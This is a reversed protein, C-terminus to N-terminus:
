TTGRLALGGAETRRFDLHTWPGDRRLDGALLGACRLKHARRFRAAEAQALNKGRQTTLTFPAARLMALDSDDLPASRIERM